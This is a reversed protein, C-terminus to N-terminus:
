EAKPQSKEKKDEKKSTEKKVEEWAETHKECQKIVEDNFVEEVLGTKLNKFFKSM